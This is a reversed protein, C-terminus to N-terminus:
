EDDDDEAADRLEQRRESMMDFLSGSLTYGAENAIRECDAVLKAIQEDSWDAGVSQIEDYWNDATQEDNMPIHQGIRYVEIEDEEESTFPQGDHDTSRVAGFADRIAQRAADISSYEGHAYVSTANTTGCWGSTRPERSMNTLAPKTSIVVTTTDLNQEPNCGTYRNEIVYYMSNRGQKTAEAFRQMEAALADLRSNLIKGYTLVAVGCLDAESYDRAYDVGRTLAVSGSYEGGICCIPQNFTVTFAPDAKKGINTFTATLPASNGSLSHGLIVTISM